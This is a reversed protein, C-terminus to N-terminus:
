HNQELVMSGNFEKLVVNMIKDLHRVAGPGDLHYFSREILSAEKKLTEFVFEDFQEPGIMCCFDCQSIFYPKTIISQDM